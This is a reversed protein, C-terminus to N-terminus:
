CRPRHYGGKPVADRILVADVIADALEYVPKGAHRTLTQVITAHLDDRDSKEAALKERELKRRFAEM